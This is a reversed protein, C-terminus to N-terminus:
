SINSSPKPVPFIGGPSRDRERQAPSSDVDELNKPRLTDQEQLIAYRNGYGVQRLSNSAVGATEDISQIIARVSSTTRMNEINSVGATGNSEFSLTVMPNLPVAISPAITSPANSEHLPQSGCDHNGNNHLATVDVRDLCMSHNGSMEPLRQAGHTATPQGGHATASRGGNTTALHSGHTAALHGGHGGQTGVSHGGHTAVLHGGQSSSACGGHSGSPRQSSLSPAINALASSMNGAELEM